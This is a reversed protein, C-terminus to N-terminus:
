TIDGVSYTLKIQLMIFFPDKREPCQALCNCKGVTVILRTAQFLFYFIM